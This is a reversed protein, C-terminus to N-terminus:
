QAVGSGMFLADLADILDREPRDYFVGSAQQLEKVEARGAMGRVFLYYVGGFHQDYDYSSLRQKLYRQLAVSYLLYQLDYRHENIAQQLAQQHYNEVGEGLYNSKYDLLYFRGEHEFVLDIFGKLMGQMDYFDLVQDCLYGHSHLLSTLEDARLPALPFYFEMEVLRRRTSIDGLQFAQGSVSQRAAAAGEFVKLLPTNLVNFVMTEIVSQWNPDFGYKELGKEVLRALEAKDTEMFDIQEFISHMFIGANAGRPFNFISRNESQHERSLNKEGPLQLEPMEYDYAPLEPVLTVHAALQGDVATEAGYIRSLASYSTMMWDRQIQGTFQKATLVVQEQRSLLKGTPCPNELTIHEVVLGAANGTMNELVQLQRLLTAEDSAGDDAQLLLYGIATRHLASGKGRAAKLNCLGLTCRYVARTLAVYLLRLDEALREQEAKQKSSKQATLDVVLTRTKEDHFQAQRAERWGCVFPAYVINYELGKSKHITVIKLLNEDSELRIQHEDPAAQATAQSHEHLWNLLHQPGHLELSAVQLLEAIHLVNTLMREGGPRSLLSVALHHQQIIRHLMVMVGQQVWCDHYNQFAQLMKDWVYEDATMQEFDLATLSFLSTALAARVFRENRPDACALLLLYIASGEATQLVSDDSIFASPINHSLLAKQMKAAEYRDRVLVAIDRAVVPRDGIKACGQQAKDLLQYIEAAYYSAMFDQYQDKGIAQQEEGLLCALHLGSVDTGDILLPKSDAGSAASVKCFTIDKDYIFPSRAFEFLGNVGAILSSASRYNANLTYIKTPGVDQRAGIYTFIDAGRFAYIAQKPDGIMLLGTSAHNLYVQQYIKYQLADTDQFEDIMALPYQERITAALAEGSPSDLATALQSLLDDPALTAIQRKQANLLSRVEKVALQLIVVRLDVLRESLEDIATFVPHLPPNGKPSQDILWQQGFRYLNDPLKYDAVADGAFRDIQGLWNPLNNKSYSKKNVGSDQLVSLLQASAGQWQTKFDEILAINNKHIGSLDTCKLEPLFLLHPKALWSDIEKLLAQPSSWYRSIQAALLEDAAYFHKRWFDAVAQQKLPREDLVFESDFLAGSEFANSRIVRQCFGHITYIAAEDMQRLAANLRQGDQQPNKSQQLLASLVMDRAFEAPSKGSLFADRATAIRQRIRDRLEQTAANTFTVVLIQDVNLLPANHGLLLRLYLSTITYTKGTGASAEILSVGTLPLGLPDLIQIDASM